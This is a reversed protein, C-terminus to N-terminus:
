GAGASRSGSPSQGRGRLAPLVEREYLAILREQDQGCQQVTVTGYGAEAYAELRELHRQPDKSCLMADAVLSETAHAAAQEYHEPTALQQGIEGGLVSTPWTQL